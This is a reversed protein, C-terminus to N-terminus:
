AGAEAADGNMPGNRVSPRLSTMCALLKRATFFMGPTIRIKSEIRCFPGPSGPESRLHVPAPSPARSPGRRQRSRSPRRGRFGPRSPRAGPAFRDAGAASRDRSNRVPRAPPSTTRRAPPRWRGRRFAPASRIPRSRSDTRDSRHPPSPPMPRPVEGRHCATSRRHRLGRPHPRHLGEILISDHVAIKGEVPAHDRGESRSM